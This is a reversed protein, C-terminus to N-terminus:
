VVSKRDRADLSERCIDLRLIDAEPIRLVAASRAKLLERLGQTGNRKAKHVEESKCKLQNIRIM